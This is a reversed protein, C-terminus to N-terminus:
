AAARIGYLTATSGVAFNTQGPCAMTISTIPLSSRWLSIWEETVGSGSEDNAAREIITKNTVTNSYNLIHSISSAFLNSLTASGTARGVVSVTSNSGRGSLASSGNGQLYTWSYNSGSDGNFRAEISGSSSSSSRASIVLMLDQFNQPINTFVIQQNDPNATAIPVMAGYQNGANMSKYDLRATAVSGASSLKYVGM